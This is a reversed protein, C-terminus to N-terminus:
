LKLEDLVRTKGLFFKIMEDEIIEEEDEINLFKKTDNIDKQIKRTIFDIVSEDDRM